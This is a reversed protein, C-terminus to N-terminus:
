EGKASIASTASELEHEGFYATKSTGWWPQQDLRECGYIPKSSAGATTIKALQGIAAQTGVSPVDQVVVHEGIQFKM